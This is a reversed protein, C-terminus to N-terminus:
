RGSEQVELLEVLIDFYGKQVLKILADNMAGEDDPAAAVIAKASDTAQKIAAIRRELKQAPDAGASKRIEYGQQNLWQTLDSYNGFGGAAVRQDFEKHIKNPPLTEIKSRRPM